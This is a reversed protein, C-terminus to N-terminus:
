CRCPTPAGMVSMVFTHGDQLGRMYEVFTQIDQNHMRICGLTCCLGQKAVLAGPDGLATGGGHIEVARPYANCRGQPLVIGGIDISGTPVVKALNARVLLDVDSQAMDRIRIRGWGTAIEWTSREFMEPELLVYHGVPMPGNSRRVAGGTADFVFRTSGGPQFVKMSETPRNFVLHIM